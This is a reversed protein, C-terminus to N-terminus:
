DDDETKSDDDSDGTSALKGTVYLFEMLEELDPGATNEFQHFMSM